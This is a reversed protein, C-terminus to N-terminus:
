FMLKLNETKSAVLFIDSRFLLKKVYFSSATVETLIINVFFQTVMFKVIFQDTVFKCFSGVYNM